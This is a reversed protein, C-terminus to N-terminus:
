FALTKFKKKQLDDKKFLNKIIFLKSIANNSVNPRKKALQMEFTKKTPGNVEKEFKKVVLVHNTDVQNKLATIEYTKYYTTLAKREKTNPSPAHLFFHLWTSM